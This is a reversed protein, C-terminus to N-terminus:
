CFLSRRRPSVLCEMFCSAATRRNVNKALEAFELFTPKITEEDEDDENENDEPARLRSQLLKLVKVTHKHWKTGTREGVDEQNKKDEDKDESNIQLENVLGLDGLEEDGHHLHAADEQESDDLASAIDEKEEDDM